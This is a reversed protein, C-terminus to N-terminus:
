REALTRKPATVFGAAEVPAAGLGEVREVDMGDREAEGRKLLEKMESASLGEAPEHRRKPAIGLAENMLDEDRQKALALEAQLAEARQSKNTKAYWTLDKGKQWRGVPAQVSHGLYNERYKDNKVDEWKFQDAGGRTGGVRYNTKGFSM